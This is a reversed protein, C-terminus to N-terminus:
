CSYNVGRLHLWVQDDGAAPAEQFEKVFWYTYYDRGTRYIDPIRDNNMGFFPDPVQKNVLQTTLVTGPVVAPQWGTLPYGPQSLQAGTATVKAIPMGQWGSNLEYRQQAALPYAGALLLFLLLYRFNTM